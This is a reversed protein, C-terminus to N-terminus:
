DKKFSNLHVKLEELTDVIILYDLHSSVSLDNIDLFQKKLGNWFGDQNLLYIPTEMRGTKSHVLFDILEHLTAIGGPLVIVLDALEHFVALRQHLREVGVVREPLFAQHCGKTLVYKGDVQLLHKYLFIGYLEQLSAATTIYGNVVEEMLGTGGGGTVLGFNYFGLYQGLDYATARFAPMPKQHGSCFVAVKTHKANLYNTTLVLFLSVAILKM